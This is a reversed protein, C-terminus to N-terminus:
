QEILEILHYELNYMFACYRDGFAASRFKNVLRYGADELRTIEAAINDTYVGIHYYGANKKLLQSLSSTEDMPQVFEVQTDGISYFQVKVKQDPIEFIASAMGAPHLLQYDAIAVTLDTVLCGIHHLSSIM